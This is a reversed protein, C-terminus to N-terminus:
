EVASLREFEANFECGLIAIAAMLYMWVLLAISAGISGYMVNYRAIHRAYWAFGSTALLWLVTALVAGRWVGSWQQRRYPGYYYLICTLAVTAGFAIVYRGIMGLLQWLGALPNLLPDVRSIGLLAREAQSGFLFVLMIAVWTEHFFSRSRPIRYAEHFGNMLSKIVGSAAWLALVLALIVLTISKQGRARFQTLVIKETDPPLVKQLVESLTNSVFDAGTMVFLTAASTLVPFFSLLASYAAGKAIYFCGDDIAALLTRQFLYPLARWTPRVHSLIAPPLPTRKRQSSHHSRGAPLALTSSTRTSIPRWQGKRGLRRM